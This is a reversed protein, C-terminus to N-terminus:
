LLGKIEGRDIKRFMEYADVGPQPLETPTSAGSAPSTARPARPQRHRPRRSAPRVEPRARPRGPRQGPRHDHAYGCNPRGIRGSALVINIAGLVNQVGHHSARHRPRAAPLQDEGHGVMRRGAPDVREAIGTVEATRQPTWEQVYEAVQTSASPTSRRHVDHDLWDNEIMLHLVGTFLAADRGPKVPLFLDCTRAIPTIRPDVSSSRRARARAGALHLQDHDARVRRRQRRQGLDGRRRPHRGLTPPATSASRRRTPRRRRQGHVAPRQLRHVADEPLRPRVQGDPLDERDDPERRQARAFADNGYRRSFASSRPPSGARDGADYPVASFGAPRRRTASTARHAASRSALRAPLAQRGQPLAHRPQVPVGGM